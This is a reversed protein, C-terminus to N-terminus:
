LNYTSDRRSIVGKLILSANAEVFDVRAQTLPVADPQPSSKAGPDLCCTQGIRNEACLWNKSSFVRNCIKVNQIDKKKM